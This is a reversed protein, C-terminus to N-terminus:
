AAPLDPPDEAAVQASNGATIQEIIWRDMDRLMQPALEHAYPYQRLTVWMGAVHLLRLDECVRTTPYGPSRRGTALFVSLRRARSLNALPRGGQPFCGGFSAVGAFQEPWGLGLRLAMTGGVDFGALFVRDAAIHFRASATRIAAFVRGAAEVVGDESQPWGFRQKGPGVESRLGVGRPAVAVYNRMSVMPMVRLLQQEDCGPGHLWVILPYAYGPEYHLPGFLTLTPDGAPSRFFGGELQPWPRIKPTSSAQPKLTTHTRDM